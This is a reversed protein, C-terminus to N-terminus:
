KGKKISLVKKAQGKPYKKAKRVETPDHWDVDEGEPIDEVHKCNPYGTCALKKQADPTGAKFVTMFLENGCDPCKKGYPVKATGKCLPWDVCGYFPGFRGANNLVMGKGCKPCKVGDVEQKYNKNKIVPKGDVLDITVTGKCDKPYGMCSMYFGFRGHRLYTRGGCKPCPIGYDKQESNTAKRCEAQFPVFFNDLMEEYKLKGDAIKDLRDEMQATYDYNMFQFNDSLKKIVNKGTETAHYTKGKIEVYSRGKITEMITAYTSPRGIGRKELEKVLAAEGYRSPPQTFKQEAAVGPSVLNLKDKEKLPPLMGEDDEKEKKLDSSIILWGEYKLSRGSAKLEHNSSSNILVTMTDYIAPDMQCSVFREWILKYLKKEDDNSYITQPKKNVDTPRIAEHADQAGEKASYLNPSKPMSLNNNKLYDRVADISEPSLRTSDTRMYTILGAEYLTQAIQMTKKVNFGFRTSAAQQLTSTTLPPLPNRKKERAEVSTVVFSDKELDTKIKLADVKNTIKKNYKAIFSDSGSKALAATINWYEEPKFNEIELEREVVLKAAVSQVRGASLNPGVNERLFDSAMFGVIRDLVRRAQQADFLDKNLNGPKEVAKLIASKTIENFVVRFIPKGIPDLCSKLHWAIAEGERDNDTALYIKDATKAADLISQIKDKKDPLTKYIPKYNNEINVGLKHVKDGVTLDIIHGFSARVIYNSGLYSQIKKIKGPSEVVLLIKSM